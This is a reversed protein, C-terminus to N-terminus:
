GGSAPESGGDACCCGSEAYSSHSCTLSPKEAAPQCTLGRMCALSICALCLYQNAMLFMSHRWCHSSMCGRRLSCDVMEVRCYLCPDICKVEAQLLRFAAETEAAEADAQVAQARSADLEM